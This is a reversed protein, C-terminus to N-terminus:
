RCMKQVIEGLQETHARWSTVIPHRPQQASATENPAQQAKGALALLQHAAASPNNSAFVEFARHAPIDSAVVPLGMALAQGIGLNYGEWRSFNAYIDAACYLDILEENSMNSFVRLGHQQMAEIDVQTARGAIVFVLKDAAQPNLQKLTDRVELYSDIGKYRREAQHYRCVNLVVTKGSLAHHERVALRRQVLADSWVALHSNALPLIQCRAHPSEVKVANSIAYIQHALSISSNKETIIARRMDAEPFFAPDPEGYDYAVTNIGTQLWRVATYFPPTHMIVTDIGHRNAFEAAEMPTSLTIRTCGPYSFDHASVPGGMFVAHGCGALYRAQIDMVVAVGHGLQHAVSLMLIRQQPQKDRSPSWIHTFFKASKWLTM